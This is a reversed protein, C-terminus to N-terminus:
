EAKSRTNAHEVQSRAPDTPVSSPCIVSGEEAKTEPASTLAVLGWFPSVRVTLDERSPANWKELRGTPSYESVTFAVPKAANEADEMRMSM